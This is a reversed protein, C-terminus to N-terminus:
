KTSLPQDVPYLHTLDLGPIRFREMAAILPEVPYRVVSSYRRGDIRRRTVTTFQLAVM